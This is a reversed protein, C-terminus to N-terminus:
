TSPIAVCIAQLANIAKDVITGRVTDFQAYITGPSSHITFSLITGSPGLRGEPVNM